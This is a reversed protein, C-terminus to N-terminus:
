HDASTDEPDPWDEREEFIAVGLSERGPEGERLLSAPTEAHADEFIEVGEAEERAVEIAEESDPREHLETGEADERARSLYRNRHRKM